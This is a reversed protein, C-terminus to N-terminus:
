RVRQSIVTWNNGPIPAWSQGAFVTRFGRQRLHAEAEGPEWFNLYTTVLEGTCDCETEYTYPSVRIGFDWEHFDPYVDGLTSPTDFLVFGSRSVIGAMSQIVTLAQEKTLHTLSGVAIVFKFDPNIQSLGDIVFDTKITRLLPLLELQRYNETTIQLLEDSHDLATVVAGKLAFPITCRGTGCGIDLVQDGTNVHPLLHQHIEIPGWQNNWGTPEYEDSRGMVQDFLEGGSYVEIINAM